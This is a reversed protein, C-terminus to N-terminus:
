KHFVLTVDVKYGGYKLGIAMDTAKYSFGKGKKREMAEIVKKAEITKLAKETEAVVRDSVSTLLRKGEERMSELKNNAKEAWARIEDASMKDFDVTINSM